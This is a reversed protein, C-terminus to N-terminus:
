KLHDSPTAKRDIILYIEYLLFSLFTFLERQSSYWFCFSKVTHNCSYCSLLEDFGVITPRVACVAHHAFKSLGAPSRYCGRM